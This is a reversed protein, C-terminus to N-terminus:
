QANDAGDASHASLVAVLVSLFVGSDSVFNPDCQGDTRDLQSVSDTRGDTRTSLYSVALFHSTKALIYSM